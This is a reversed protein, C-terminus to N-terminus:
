SMREGDMEGEAKTLIWRTLIRRIRYGLESRQHMKGNWRTCGVQVNRNDVHHVDMGQPLSCRGVITVRTVYSPNARFSGSGFSANSPHATRKREFSTKRRSAQMRLSLLFRESAELVKDQDAQFVFVNREMAARNSKWDKKHTTSSTMQVHVNMRSRAGATRFVLSPKRPTNQFAERMPSRILGQTESPQIMMPILIRKQYPHEDWSLHISKCQFCRCPRTADYFNLLCHM